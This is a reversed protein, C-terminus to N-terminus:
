GGDRKGKKHASPKPCVMKKGIELVREQLAMIRQNIGEPEQNACMVLRRVLKEPLGRVDAVEGPRGAPLIVIPKGGDAHVIWPPGMSSQKLPPLKREGAM